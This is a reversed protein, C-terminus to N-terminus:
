YVFLQWWREANALEMEEGEVKLENESAKLFTVEEPVVVVIENSRAMKLTDRIEKEQWQNSGAEELKQNLEVQEKKVVLQETEAELLREDVKWLRYIDKVLRVSITISIGMIVYALLRKKGTSM